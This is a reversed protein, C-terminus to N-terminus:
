ADARVPVSNDVRSLLNETSVPVRKGGSKNLNRDGRQGTSSSKMNELLAANEFKLKKSNDTVRSIESKLSLNEAILADVRKALEEAESQKRLRSRRASERNSQKRRQRKLERDNKLWTENAMIPHPQPTNNAKVVLGSSTGNIGDEPCYIKKRIQCEGDTNGNSGDTSKDTESSQSDTHNAGGGNDGNEAGKSKKRLSHETNGSSKTANEANPAPGPPVSGPNAYVGGHAYIAAYPPGYPPMMPQPHGWMYPHSAQGSGVNAGYFHPMAVRPGYYAQMAAWDPYAHLNAQDVPPSPAKESRLEESNAM